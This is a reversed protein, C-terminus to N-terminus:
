RRLTCRLVFRAREVAGLAAEDYLPSRRFTRLLWWGAPKAGACLAAWREAVVRRFAAQPYLGAARNAEVVKLLWAHVAETGERTQPAQRRCSRTTSM